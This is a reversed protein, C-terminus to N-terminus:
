SAVEYRDAFSLEHNVSSKPDDEVLVQRRVLIGGKPTIAFPEWEQLDGLLEDSLPYLEKVQWTIREPM